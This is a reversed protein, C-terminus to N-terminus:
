RDKAEPWPQRPSWRVVLQTILAPELLHCHYLVRTIVVDDFQETQVENCGSRTSANGPLGNRTWMPAIENLVREADSTAMERVQDDHQLLPQVPAIVVETATRREDYTATAAIGPAAVFREIIPTGFRSGIDPAMLHLGMKSQVEVWLDRQPGADVIYSSSISIDRDGQGLGCSSQGPKGDHPPRSICNLGNLMKSQREAPVFFDVLESVAAHDMSREPKFDKWQYGVPAIRVAAVLGIPNYEVSVVAPGAAFGQMTAKGYRDSLDSATAAYCSAAFIIALPLLKNVVAGITATHNGVYITTFTPEASVPEGEV